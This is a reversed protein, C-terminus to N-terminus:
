KSIKHFDFVRYMVEFAYKKPLLTSHLFPPSQSDNKHKHGVAIQRLM